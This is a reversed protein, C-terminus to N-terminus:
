GGIRFKCRFRRSDPRRLVPQFRYLSPRFVADEPTVSTRCKGCRIASKQRVANRRPRRESTQNLLRSTLMCRADVLYTVPWRRYGTKTEWPTTHTTRTKATQASAVSLLSAFTFPLRLMTESRDNVLRKYRGLGDRPYEGRAHRGRRAAYM